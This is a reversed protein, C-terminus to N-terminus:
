PKILKLERISQMIKDVMQKHNEKRKHPDDEFNFRLPPGFRMRISSFWPIFGFIKRYFPQTGTIAAPVVCVRAMQAVLAIGPEGEKIMGPPVRMGEPFICVCEGQKLLEVARRLSHRDGSGGKVPICGVRKIWARLLSSTFLEEKAMFTIMRPWASGVVPPDLYSVHNPALIFGENKPINEQGTVKLRFFVKLFILFILRSFSYLM